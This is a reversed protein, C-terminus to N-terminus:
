RAEGFRRGDGMNGEAMLEAVRAAPTGPPPPENAIVMEPAPQSMVAFRLAHLAPSYTALEDAHTDDSLGSALGRILHECTSDITLWPVGDPAPRLFGRVRQWGNFTDPDAQVLPVGNLAFTEAISQGIFGRTEKRIKQFCEENAVTYAIRNETLCLARDRQHIQACLDIELVHTFALESIVNVYHNPKVRFWLCVGAHQGTQAAYGFQLSRFYTSRTIM